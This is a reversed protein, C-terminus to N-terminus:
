KLAKGDRFASGVKKGVAYYGHLAPDYIIPRLKAIDIRGDTLVSEDATVNVIEGIMVETENDYSVLTCELAMPLEEILPADVKESKVAHFGSREFKDPVKFASVIGAYDCPVVTGETGPSVTFAKRALINATTKHTRDVCICVRNEGCIGGWAANMVDPVGNEDYSAIMYVTMPYMLAEAGFDKRMASM